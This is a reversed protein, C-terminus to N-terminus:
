PAGLKALAVFLPLVDLSTDAWCVVRDGHGIGRAALANAVRNGALDLELHTLGADSLTAAVRDPVIEANRRFIDGILLAM